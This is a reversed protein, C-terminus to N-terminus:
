CKGTRKGVGGVSRVNENFAPINDNHLRKVMFKLLRDENNVSELNAFEGVWYFQRTVKFDLSATSILDNVSLASHCFIQIAQCACEWNLSFFTVAKKNWSVYHLIDKQLGNLALNKKYRHAKQQHNQASFQGENYHQRTSRLMFLIHHAKCLFYTSSLSQEPMLKIATPWSPILHSTQLCSM